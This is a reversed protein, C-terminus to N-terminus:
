GAGLQTFEEIADEAKIVNADIAVSVGDPESLTHSQGFNRGDTDLKAAGDLCIVNCDCFGVAEFSIFNLGDGPNCPAPQM